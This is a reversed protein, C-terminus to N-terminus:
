RLRVAQLTRIENGVKLRYFYLGPGVSAGNDARGDWTRSYSGAAFSGRELQAIRRGGVDFVALEVQAAHPLGFSVRASRAPNPAISFTIVRPISSDVANNSHVIVDADSRPYVEFVGFNLHMLGTVDDLNGDVPQYSLGQGNAHINITDGCAPYPGEVHFSAGAARPVGWQPTTCTPCAPGERYAEKVNNLRVLVGEWDEASQGVPTSCKDVPNPPVANLDGVAAVHPAPVSTAGLDRMYAVGTMETESLGAALAPFEQVGSAILYSHGTILAVPPAFVSLGSRAGGGADEIYYVNGVAGTCIGSYTLRAPNDPWIGGVTGADTGGNNRGLFNAVDECPTDLLSDPNPGQITYITQLGYVYDKPQATTMPVLTGAAKVKNIKVVDIAGSGVASTIAVDVSQNDAELVCGNAITGSAWSYNFTNTATTVEVAKDFVVRITDNSVCYADVVNPPESTAIDSPKRVLVIYSNQGSYARQDFVGQVSTVFGGVPPAGIGALTATEILLSDCTGITGVPCAADDVVLCNATPYASVGLGVHRVVRMTNPVRVLCGEWQEGSPNSPLFNLEHVTGVHFDPVPNNSSVYRFIINPGGFVNNPYILETGGGFEATKSFEVVVSDGLKLGAAGAENTGGTFVDIGRWPTNPPASRELYFSFGTTISDIATFIGGVGYVTDGTAAFKPALGANQCNDIWLTDTPCGCGPTGPPWQVAQSVTASLCLTLLAGLFLTATRKM